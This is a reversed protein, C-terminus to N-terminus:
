KINWYEWIWDNISVFPFFSNRSFYKRIPGRIREEGNESGGRPGKQGSHRRKGSPREERKTKVFEAQPKMKSMNKRMM